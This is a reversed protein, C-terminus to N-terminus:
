CNYYYVDDDDDFIVAGSFSSLVGLVAAALALGGAQMYAM